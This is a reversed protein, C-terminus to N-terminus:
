PYEHYIFLCPRALVSESVSVWLLQQVFELEIIKAGALFACVRLERFRVCVCARMYVYTCVRMCM